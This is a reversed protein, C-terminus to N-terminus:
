GGGTRGDLKLAALEDLLDLLEEVRAAGFREDIEAYVRRSDPM